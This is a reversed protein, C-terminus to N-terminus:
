LEEISSPGDFNRVLVLELSHSGLLSRVGLVLRLVYLVHEVQSVIHVHIWITTWVFALAGPLFCVTEIVGLIELCVVEHAVASIM